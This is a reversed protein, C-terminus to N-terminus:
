RCVGRDSGKELLAGAQDYWCAWVLCRRLGACVHWAFSLAEGGGGLRAGVGGLCCISTLLAAAITKDQCLM